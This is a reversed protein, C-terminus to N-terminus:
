GKFQFGLEALKSNVETDVYSVCFFYKGFHKMRYEYIKQDIQDFTLDKVKLGEVTQNIEIKRGDLAWVTTGGNKVLVVTGDSKKESGHPYYLGVRYGAAGTEVVILRDDDSIILNSNSNPLIGDNKRRTAFTYTVM